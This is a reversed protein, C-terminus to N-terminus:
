RVCVVKSVGSVKAIAKKGITYVNSGSALIVLAAYVRLDGISLRSDFIIEAPIYALSNM